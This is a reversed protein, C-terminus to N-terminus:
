YFINQITNKVVENLNLSIKSGSFQNEILYNYKYNQQGAKYESNLIHIAEKKVEIIITKIEGEKEKKIFLTEYKKQRQELEYLTVAELNDTAKNKITEKLTEYTGKLFIVIDPEPFHEKAEKKIMDEIENKRQYALTSYYYRDAIVIDKENLMPILVNPIAWHRNAQFLHALTLENTITKSKLFDYFNKWEPCDVFPEKYKGISLEKQTLQNNLEEVFTSKGIFDIGETAILM